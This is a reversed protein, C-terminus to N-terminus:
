QFLLFANGLIFFPLVKWARDGLHTTRLELETTSQVIVFFM